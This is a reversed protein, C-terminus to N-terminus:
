EAPFTKDAVAHGWDRVGIEDQSEQRIRNSQRERGGNEKETQRQRV